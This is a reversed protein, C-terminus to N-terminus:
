ETAGTRPIRRSGLAEEAADEGGMGEILLERLRRRRRRSVRGLVYAALFLGGSVSVLIVLIWDTNSVPADANVDDEPFGEGMAILAVQAVSDDQEAALRYWRIAEARDEPVGDGRAYLSGLQAQDRAVGQEACWILDAVPSASDDFETVRPFFFRCTASVEQASGEAPVLFLTGVAASILVGFAGARSVMM